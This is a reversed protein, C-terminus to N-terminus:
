RKKAKRVPILFKKNVSPNPLPLKGGPPIFWLELGSEERFGGQVVTIRSLDMKRFSLHDSVLKYSRGSKGSRRDYAIIYGKRTPNNQLDVLFNDLHGRIDSGALGEFSDVLYASNTLDETALWVNECSFPLGSIEVSATVRAADTNKLDVIISDTGDGAIIKGASVKWSFGSADKQRESYSWAKFIITKEAAFNSKYGLVRFSPCTIAEAADFAPTPVPPAANKPVIWYELTNNERLGGDKVVINEEATKTRNYIHFKTRDAWNSIKNEDRTSTKRAKYYIIYITIGREKKIQRVFRDIRGTIDIPENMFWYGYEIQDTFEDFKLAEPKSQALGTLSFIALCIILIIKRM